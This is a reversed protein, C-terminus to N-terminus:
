ECEKLEIALDMLIEIAGDLTLIDFTAGHVKIVGAKESLEVCLREAIEDIAKARIEAEFDELMKSVCEHMGCDNYMFNIDKLFNLLDSKAM